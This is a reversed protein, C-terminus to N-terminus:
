SGYLPHPGLPGSFEQSGLPEPFLRETLYSCHPCPLLNLSPLSWVLSNVKGEWTKPFRSLNALHPVVPQLLAIVATHGLLGHFAARAAPGWPSWMTVPLSCNSSPGPSQGSGPSQSLTPSRIDQISTIHVGLGWTHTNPPAGFDEVEWTPWACAM